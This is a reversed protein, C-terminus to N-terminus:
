HFLWTLPFNICSNKQKIPTHKATNVWDTTDSKQSRISQLRGPEETRPSEGPLFVPTPQWARRWPIKEVWPNFGCRGWQLYIIASGSPFGLFVWTPLKDKTWPIKWVWFNFWTEQLALMNNVLQAVLCFMISTNQQEAAWHYGVQQSQMSQLLGPKRIRWWRRCRAWVWTWPTLSAM